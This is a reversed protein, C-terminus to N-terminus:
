PNVMEWRKLNFDYQKIIKAPSGAIVCYDPFFGSVTSNAGVVCHNGLKTGPLIVSNMGILCDKGIEIPKTEIQAIRPNVSVDKYPHIIDFIGCNATISTGDGIAISNACTCHLNQNVAVNDGFFIRPTYIQGGWRCVAELRLNDGFCCNQGIEIFQAGRIRNQRGFTVWKGIRKFRWRFLIATRLLNFVVLIYIRIRTM